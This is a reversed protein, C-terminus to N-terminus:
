FSSRCFKVGRAIFAGAAARALLGLSWMELDTAAKWGELGGFELSEAAWGSMSEPLTRERGACPM